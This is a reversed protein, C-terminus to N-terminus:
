GQNYKGLGNKGIMLFLPRIENFTLETNGSKGLATETHLWKAALAQWKAGLTQWPEGSLGVEECLYQLLSPM